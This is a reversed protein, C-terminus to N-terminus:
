TASSAAAAAPGQRVLAAERRALAGDPPPGARRPGARGLRRRGGRRGARQGDRRGARDDGHLRAPLRAGGAPAARVPQHALGRDDLPRLQAAADGARQGARRGATEFLEVALMGVVGLRDAIRVALQQAAAALDADLGPRPPSCRPASATASCRRSWRGSRSRGSRRAPWRRPSSACADDVREEALLTGHEDLLTPPRSPPRRRRVRGQRRLRRAPDEAGGALRAGRRLRRRRRRVGGPGLGAPAGGRRRARPAPGAQGPRPGARGPRARRPPRRGRPRAPARHARARPRLHAGHRRRRGPPARRPRPPRRPRRRRRRARGLRRPRAALVRLSQGLAVAAQHTMRALQGGGVM